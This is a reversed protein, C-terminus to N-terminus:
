RSETIKVIEGQEDLTVILIREMKIHDVTKATTRFKLRYIRKFEKPVGLALKKYISDQPGIDKESIEPEINKFTPFDKFIKKKVENIKDRSVM